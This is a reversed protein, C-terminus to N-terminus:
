AKITICKIQLKRFIRETLRAFKILLYRLFSSKLTYYFYRSLTLQEPYFWKSVINDFSLENYDNWFSSRSPPMPFSQKLSLNTKLAQELSRGKLQMDLHPIIMKAKQNNAFLLSVGKREFDKDDKNEAKYGWWDAITFDAVRSTSTYKCQYCSPRLINDRLFARIFPDSYYAGEYEYTLRGTKKEVHSNVAMNFFIWSSKKCRFKIDYVEHGLQNGLFRIYDKFVRGSPVGHCILDVTYLNEYDHRLYSKLGAIQCPTGSFLVITGQKLLAEADNYTNGVNSQIYKSGQLKLLDDVNDIKVHCAELNDDMAVGYVVGNRKEIIYRALETFAGGSASRKRTEDDKSWGSYITMPQENRNVPSNVPCVRICKKCGVCVNADIVPRRFGENDLKMSIASHACANYCAFCGTCETYNCIETVAEM